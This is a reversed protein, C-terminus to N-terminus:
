KKADTLKGNKRKYITDMALEKRGVRVEEVYTTTGDKYIKSYVVVDQGRRNKHTFLDDYNELIQPIAEIDEKTSGTFKDCYVEIQKIFNLQKETPLNMIKM